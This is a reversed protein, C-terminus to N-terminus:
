NRSPYIGTLAICFHIGLFPQVISVPSSSGATGSTTAALAGNAPSGSYNNNVTNALIHTNGENTNGDEDTVGVSVNHAHPALNATTLTVNEAGGREGWRRNSLGPGQGVHMATRGQLDPLGFTTRGDGGFTTGLLSFLATNSAISLLQGNCFAWGRPAFNFGFMSIQGIFPEM